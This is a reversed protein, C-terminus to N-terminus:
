SFYITPKKSLFWILLWCFAIWLLIYIDLEHSIQLTFGDASGHLNIYKIRLIRPLRTIMSALSFLNFSSTFFQAILPLFISILLSVIVKKIYLSYLYTLSGIALSVLFYLSFLGILYGTYSPYKDFEFEPKLVSLINASVIIFLLTFFNYLFLFLTIVLFKFQYIKFIPYPLAFLSKWGNAKDEMNKIIFTTLSTVLPLLFTIILLPINYYYYWPNEDNGPWINDHFEQLTLNYFNISFMTVLLLPLIWVFHLSSYGKTKLLESLFMM